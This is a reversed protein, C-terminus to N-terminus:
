FAPPSRQLRLRPVLRPSMCLLALISRQPRPSHSPWYRGIARMTGSSTKPRWFKIRNLRPVCVPRWNCQRELCITITKFRNVQASVSGCICRLRPTAGNFSALAKQISIACDLAQAISAFSAMIGDGLHKVERGAHDKLSSASRGPAARQLCRTRSAAWFRRSWPPIWRSSRTRCLGM